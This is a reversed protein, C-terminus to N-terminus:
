AANPASPLNTQYRNETRCEALATSEQLYSAYHWNAHFLSAIPAEKCLAIKGALEQNSVLQKGCVSVLNEPNPYPELVDLM